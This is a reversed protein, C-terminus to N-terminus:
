FAGKMMSEAADLTTFVKKLWSRMQEGREAIGELQFDSVV